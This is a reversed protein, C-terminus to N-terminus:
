RKRGHWKSIKTAEQGTLVYSTGPLNKEIENMSTVGASLIRGSM